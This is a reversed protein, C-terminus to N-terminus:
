VEAVDLKQLKNRLTQRTFGLIRSAESQNYDVSSLTHRIVMEEVEELTTGLPIRIQPNAQSPEFEGKSIAAPLCETTIKDGTCMIVVREAMNRLERVNGPWDYALLKEICADTVKLASKQYKSTFHYLFYEFLLPIDDKRDRLPPVELEVVNLRYYLDERFDGQEMAEKIDRNTAAVIRTDTAVEETGGLRRYTGYEIARLLKVQTDSGMEAIEDLFLTGHNAMEFCGAKQKNAGTFAGKEHGFLESEVLDKPLAGSNVDVFRENQRASHFHIMRAIVEKGTGSEGTILVSAETKAVLKVKERLEEMIPNQTVLLPEEQNTFKHAEQMDLKKDILIGRENMVDDGQINSSM